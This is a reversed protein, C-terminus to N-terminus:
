LIAEVKSAGAKNEIIPAQHLKADMDSKILRARKRYNLPEEEFIRVTDLSDM